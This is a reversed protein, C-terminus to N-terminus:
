RTELGPQAGTVSSTSRWIKELTKSEEPTQGDRIWVYGYMCSHHPKDPEGWIIALRKVALTLVTLLQLVILM